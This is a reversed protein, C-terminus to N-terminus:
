EVHKWTVKDKANRIAKRSVGYHRSMESITKNSERIEKVKADSLKALYNKEGSIKDHRMLNNAKAHRMNETRSVWELNESRNDSKDGNKHNVENCTEPNKNKIFTIAILRHVRFTKRKSNKSLVVRLYGKKNKSEKLVIEKKNKYRKIIRGNVSAYYLKEYGPIEKVNGLM